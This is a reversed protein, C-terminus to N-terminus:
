KRENELGFEHQLSVVDCPGDNAMCPSTPVREYSASRKWDANRVLEGLMEAVEAPRFPKRIVAAAGLNCLKWETYHGLDGSMFCCRLYGNIKQLAALTQPGDLGPMCVDMLVVDITRRHRRYLDLAEQGNAALWVTFGQRRMGVNLIGRVDEDDDVVLIGYKRPTPRPADPAEALRNPKLLLRNEGTSSELPQQAMNLILKDM